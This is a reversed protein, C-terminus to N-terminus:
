KCEQLIRRAERQEQERQEDTLFSREGSRATRSVREGSDLARLYDRTSECNKAKESAAKAEDTAKKEKEAQETKRKRFETNKEATTMEPAQSPQTQREAAPIAQTVPTKGGPQKLIRNAPVSPPPPMDSYQKIGSEDIWAYQASTANTMHLLILAAVTVALHKFPIRKM